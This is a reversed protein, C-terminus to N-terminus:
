DHEAEKLLEPNEYINGIVECRKRVVYLEEGDYYYSQEFDRILELYWVGYEMKVVYKVDHFYDDFGSPRLVGKVLVINGEYIEKGNKDKLGTYQLLEIDDPLLEEIVDANNVFVTTIEGNEDWNISVVDYIRKAEKDLAKFKIERM